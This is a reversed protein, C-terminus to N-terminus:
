PFTLVAPAGPPVNHNGTLRRAHAGGDGTTSGEDDVVNGIGNGSRAVGQDRHLRAADASGVQVRQVVRGLQDPDRSSIPAGSVNSGATSKMM